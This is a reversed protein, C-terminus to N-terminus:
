ELPPIRKLQAHREALKWFLRHVRYETRANNEIAEDIVESHSDRLEWGGEVSISGVTVGHNGVFHFQLQYEGLAIQTLFGGVFPTLDLDAPVGYM